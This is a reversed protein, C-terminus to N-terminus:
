VPTARKRGGEAIILFKTDERELDAVDQSRGGGGGEPSETKEVRQHTRCTM